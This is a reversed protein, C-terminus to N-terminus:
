AAADDNSSAEITKLDRDAALTPTATWIPTIISGEIGHRFRYDKDAMERSLFMKAVTSSRASTWPGGSLAGVAAGRGASTLWCRRGRPLARPGAV